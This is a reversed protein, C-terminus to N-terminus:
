IDHYSFHWFPMANIKSFDMYYVLSVFPLDLIKKQLATMKASIPGKAKM